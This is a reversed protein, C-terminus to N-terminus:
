GTEGSRLSDVSVPLERGGPLRGRTFRSASSVSVRLAPARLFSFGVFDAEYIGNLLEM